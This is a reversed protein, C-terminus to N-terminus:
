SPSYRNPERRSRQSRRPPVSLDGASSESPIQATREAGRVESPGRDAAMGSTYVANYRRKERCVPCYSNGRPLSQLWSEMCSLHIHTKCRECTLSVPEEPTQIETCICCAQSPQGQGISRLVLSADRGNPSNSPGLIVEAPQSPSVSFPVDERRLVEVSMQQAEPRPPASDITMPSPPELALDVPDHRSGTAHRDPVLVAPRRRQYERLWAKVLAPAQNQHNRRCLLLHSVKSLKQQLVSPSPAHEALDDLFTLALDRSDRAVQNNCKQKDKRLGICTTVVRPDPIGYADIPDWTFAM